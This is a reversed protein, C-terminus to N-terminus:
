EYGLLQKSQNVIWEAWERYYKAYIHTNDRTKEADLNGTADDFVTNIDLYFITQNNALESIATNFKNLAENNVVKDSDSRKKTVHLNAEIFIIADPQKQQITKTLDTFRKVITDLKYGIENIGLMIYIKGYQKKELLENLTVSGVSSVSIKKDDINYSSMGVDCFFDVGDMQAYESIGVTRSDGIMLADSMTFEGKPVSPEEASSQPSEAESTEQQQSSVRDNQQSSVTEDSLSNIKDGDKPKSHNAIIVIVAGIILIVFIALTIFNSKKM